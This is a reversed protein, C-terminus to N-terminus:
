CAAEFNDQRRCTSHHGSLWGERSLVPLPLPLLPLLMM